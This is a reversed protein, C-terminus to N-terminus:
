EAWRLNPFRKEAYDIAEALTPFCLDGNVYQWRAGAPTYWVYFWDEALDNVIEPRAEYDGNGYRVSTQQVCVDGTAQGAYLFTGEKVVRGEDFM